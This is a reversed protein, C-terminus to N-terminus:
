GGLNRQVQRLHSGFPRSSAAASAIMERTATPSCPSCPLELRVITANDAVPPTFAPSSSGFLAVLPKGLAAAIHMLGSDNSVVARAGAHVAGQVAGSGVGGCGIVAVVDGPKVQWVRGNADTITAEGELIHATEDFDYYWYFRGATCDWM